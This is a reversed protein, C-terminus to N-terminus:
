DNKLQRQLKKLKQLRGHALLLDVWTSFLSGLNEAGREFRKNDIEALADIIDQRDPEKRLLHRYIEAAQGLKGQDAYVKAM